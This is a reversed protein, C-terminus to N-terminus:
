EFRLAKKPCSAICAQCKICDRNTLKGHERDRLLPINLPCSKECLKCGICTYKDIMLKRSDHSITSLFTGIPCFACWTRHSFFLGLLVGIGTTVTCMLWFMHGFHELTFPGFITQLGFVSFLFIFISWRFKKNFLFAPINRRRSFIKLIRDYFAGRPCFNGCVIRGRILVPSLMNVLMVIPAVFALWYYKWGLAITIVTVGALLWQRSVRNKLFSMLQM